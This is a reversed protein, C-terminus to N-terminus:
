VLFHQLVKPGPWIAKQAENGLLAVARPHLLEIIRRTGRECRDRIRRGEERRENSLLKGIGSGTQIWFRNLGVCQELLDIRGLDRFISRLIMAMNHDHRIYSNVSPIGGVLKEVNNIATQRDDRDFWSPNNAIIMLSPSLTEIPTYLIVFRGLTHTAPSTSEKVLEPLYARTLQCNDSNWFSDFDSYLAEIESRAAQM